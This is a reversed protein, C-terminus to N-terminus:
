HLAPVICPELWPELWLELGHLACSNAKDGARSSDRQTLAESYLPLFSFSRPFLAKACTDALHVVAGDGLFLM